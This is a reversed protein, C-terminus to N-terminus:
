SAPFQGVETGSAIGVSGVISQARWFFLGYPINGPLQYKQPCVSTDGPVDVRGEGRTSEVLRGSDRLKIPSEASDGNQEADEPRRPLRNESGFVGGDIPNPGAGVDLVPVSYQLLESIGLM